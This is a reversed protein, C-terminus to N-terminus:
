ASRAAQLARHARLELLAYLHNKDSRDRPMPVVSSHPHDVLYQYCDILRSLEADPITQAPEWVTSRNGAPAEPESAARLEEYSEDISREEADEREAADYDPESFTYGARSMTERRNKWIYAVDVGDEYPNPKRISRM